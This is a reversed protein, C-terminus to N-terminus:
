TPCSSIPICMGQADRTYGEECNCGEVKMEICDFVKKEVFKIVDCTQTCPNADMRFVEGKSKDCNLQCLHSPMKSRWDGVTQNIKECHDALFEFTPCLCESINRSGWCTAVDMLCNEYEALKEKTDTCAKFPDSSLSRFNGNPNMYKCGQRHAVRREGRTLIPNPPAIPSVGPLCSGPVIWSNGFEVPDTSLQGNPMMMDDTSDNNYNGIMGRTLMNINWNPIVAKYESKRDWLIKVGNWVDVADFESSALYYHLDDNHYPKRANQMTRGRYTLVFDGKQGLKLETKGVKITIEHACTVKKKGCERFSAVISFHPNKLLYYSCQGQFDFHKGDLTRFHPEFILDMIANGPEGFCNVGDRDDGAWNSPCRFCHRGCVGGNGTENLRCKQGYRVQGPVAGTIRTDGRDLNRASVTAKIVFEPQWCPSFWCQAIMQTCQSGEDLFNLKCSRLSNPYQPCVLTALRVRTTPSDSAQLRRRSSSAKAAFADGKNFHRCMAQAADIDDSHCIEIREELRCPDGIESQRETCDEYYSSEGYDEKEWCKKNVIVARVKNDSNSVPESEHDEFTVRCHCIDDSISQQECIGEECLEYVEVRQLSSPSSLTDNKRSCSSLVQCVQLLVTVL